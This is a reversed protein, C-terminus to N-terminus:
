GCIISLFIISQLRLSIIEMIVVARAIDLFGEINKFYNVTFSPPLQLLVAGLKDSNKLPFIKDLFIEFDTMWNGAM